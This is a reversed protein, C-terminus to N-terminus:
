AATIAQSMINKTLFFVIIKRRLKYFVFKAQAVCSINERKTVKEFKSKKIWSYLSSAQIIYKCFTEYKAATVFSSSHVWLISAAMPVPIQASKIILFCWIQPQYYGYITQFWYFHCARYVLRMRVIHGKHSM